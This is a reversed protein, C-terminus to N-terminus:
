ALWKRVSYKMTANTGTSTTTYRLRLDTGSVDATFTVGLTGLSAIVGQAIAASTGDTALRITGVEKNASGRKLSYEIFVSDYTAHAFAEITTAVATNDTLTASTTANLTDVDGQLENLAGQVTTAALNGSPTNTIASAAHADTTDSLHDNLATTTARTDVDTQLENLAAQVDTSALNGSPVSSIASADHADVTDAIHGDLLAGDASIDRGDITISSAVTVNGTINAGNITTNELYSPITYSQGANISSLRATSMTGRARKRALYPSSPNFSPRDQSDEVKGAMRELKNNFLQRNYQAAEPNRARLWAKELAGYVLIM